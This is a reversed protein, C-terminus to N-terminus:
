PSWEVGGIVLGLIVARGFEDVAVRVDIEEGRRAEIERGRGEPVFYSEIGYDIEWRRGQGAPRTTGKLYLGSPRRFFLGTAEAYGERVALATYVTTPEGGRREAVREADFDTELTAPDLRSIEYRLIVYDGRFLDRPDVPVTRLLVEQGTQVTYEKLAILAGVLALWLVGIFIFARRSM